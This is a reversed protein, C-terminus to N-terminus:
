RQGRVLFAFTLQLFFFINFYMNFFEFGIFVWSRQFGMWCTVLNQRQAPPIADPLCSGAVLPVLTGVIIGYRLADKVNTAVFGKIRFYICYLYMSTSLTGRINDYLSKTLIQGIFQPQQEGHCTGIFLLLVSQAQPPRM